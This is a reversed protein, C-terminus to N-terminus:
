TFFTKEKSRLFVSQPSITNKQSKISTIIQILSDANVTCITSQINSFCYNIILTVRRQQIQPLQFLRKSIPLSKKKRTVAKILYIHKNWTNCKQSYKKMMMNYDKSKLKDKKSLCMKQPRNSLKPEHCIKEYHLQSKWKM